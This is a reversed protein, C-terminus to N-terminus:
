QKTKEKTTISRDFLKQYPPTEHASEPSPEYVLEPAPEPTPLKDLNKPFIKSKFNNLVKERTSLLLGVNNLLYKKEVPKVSKDLNTLANAFNSQGNDADKLSLDRKNIDKFFVIPLSYKSFSYTKEKIQNIIWNM